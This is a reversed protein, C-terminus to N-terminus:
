VEGALREILRRGPRERLPGVVDDAPGVHRAAAVERRHLLRVEIDVLHPVPRAAELTLCLRMGAMTGGTRGMVSASISAARPRIAPVQTRVGSTLSSSPGSKGSM